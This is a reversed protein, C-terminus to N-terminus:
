KKDNNQITLQKYNYQEVHGMIYIHCHCSYKNILTRNFLSDTTRARQSILGFLLLNKLGRKVQLEKFM